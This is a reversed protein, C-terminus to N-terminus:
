KGPVERFSNLIKDVDPAYKDKDRMLMWILMKYFTGKSEVTVMKYYVENGAILGKFEATRASDQGIKIKNPNVKGTSDFKNAAVKFYTSLDYDLGYEKFQSKSEDLVVLYFEREENKYQLSAEPYFTGSELYDPLQMTYKDNVTVTAWKVKSCSSLCVLLTAFYFLSKM